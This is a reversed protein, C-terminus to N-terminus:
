NTPTVAETISSCGATIKPVSPFLQNELLVVAERQASVSAHTYIELTTAMDSHGLQAQAVKLPTGQTHLLTGHTHRLMPINPSEVFGFGVHRHHHAARWLRASAVRHHTPGTVSPEKLSMM